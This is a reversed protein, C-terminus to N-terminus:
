SINHKEFFALTLPKKKPTGVGRPFIKATNKRKRFIWLTRKEGSTLEYKEIKELQIGMKKALPIDTKKSEPGRYAIFIGNKKLFPIAIELLVTWPAAARSVVVDFSERYKKERARDEGRGILVKINTLGIKQAMEEVAHMKKAVSDLPFFKKEPFFLALPLAPFGGGSGFDLIKESGGKREKKSHLFKKAALSDAIHKEWVGKEDRIASLNITTNKELFIQVLQQLKKQEALSFQHIKKVSFLTDFFISLEM